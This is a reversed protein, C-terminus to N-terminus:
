PQGGLRGDLEAVRPDDEGVIAAFRQVHQGARIQNGNDLCAVALDYHATSEFQDLQRLHEAPWMPVDVAATALQRQKDSLWPRLREAIRITAELDAIDREQLGKATALRNDVLAAIARSNHARWWHAYCRQMQAQMLVGFWNKAEYFPARQQEHAQLREIARGLGGVVQELAALQEAKTGVGLHADLFGGATDILPRVESALAAVEHTFAVRGYEPGAVLAAQELSVDARRALEDVYRRLPRGPTFDAFVQEVLPSRFLAEYDARKDFVPEMGKCYGLLTTRNLFSEDRDTAYFEAPDYACTWNLLLGVPIWAGFLVVNLGTTLLGTEVLDGTTTAEFQAHWRLSPYFGLYIKKRQFVDEPPNVLRWYDQQNADFYSSASDGVPITVCGALSSAVVCLVPVLNRLPAM